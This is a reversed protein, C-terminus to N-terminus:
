AAERTIAMITAVMTAIILAMGAVMAVMATGVAMATGAVMIIHVIIGATTLISITGTTGSHTTFAMGAPTGYTLTCSTAILAIDM